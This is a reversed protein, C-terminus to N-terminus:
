DGRRHVGRRGSQPRQAAELPLRHGRPLVRPPRELRRARLDRRLSVARDPERVLPADPGAAPGSQGGALLQGSRVGRGAPGAGDAGRPEDPDARGAPSARGGRQLRRGPDPRRRRPPARDSRPDRAHDPRVRARGGSLPHQVGPAPSGGVLPARRAGGGGGVRRLGDGPAADSPPRPPPHRKGLAAPRSPRGCWRTGTPPGSGSPRRIRPCGASRRWCSTRAAPAVAATVLPRRADPKRREPLQVRRSPPLRAGWVPRGARSGRHDGRQARAAPPDSSGRRARLM